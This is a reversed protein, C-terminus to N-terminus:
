SIFYLIYHANNQSTATKLIKNYLTEPYQLILTVVFKLVCYM